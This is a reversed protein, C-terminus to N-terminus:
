HGHQQASYVIRLDIIAFCAFRLFVNVSSSNLGFFDFKFILIITFELLSRNALWGLCLSYANLDVICWSSARSLILPLNLFISLIVM